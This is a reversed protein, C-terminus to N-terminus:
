KQQIYPNTKQYSLVKFNFLNLKELFNSCKPYGSKKLIQNIKIKLPIKHLKDLSNM